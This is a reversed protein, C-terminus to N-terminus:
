QSNNDNNNNNSAITLSSLSETITATDGSKQCMAIIAQLAQATESPDKKGSPDFFYFKTRYNRRPKSCTNETPISLFFQVGNTADGVPITEGYPASVAGRHWSDNENNKLSYFVTFLKTQPNPITELIKLEKNNVSEGIWASYDPEILSANTVRISLRKIVCAHLVTDQGQDARAHNHVLGISFKILDSRSTGNLSAYHYVPSTSSFKILEVSSTGNMASLASPILILLMLIHTMM